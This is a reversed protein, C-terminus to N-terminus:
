LAYRTNQPASARSDNAQHNIDYLVRSQYRRQGSTGAGNTHYQSYSANYVVTPAQQQTTTSSYSSYVVQAQSSAAYLERRRQQAKSIRYCSIVCLPVIIAFLGLIGGVISLSTVVPSTRSSRSSTNTRFRQCQGPITILSIAVLLIFVKSSWAM